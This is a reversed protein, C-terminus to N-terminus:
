LILCDEKLMSKEQNLDILNRVCFEKVNRTLITLTGLQNHLVGMYELTLYIDDKRFGTLNAIDNLTFQKSEDMLIRSIRQSWFRLYSVKGFASLPFEPGSHRHGQHQAIAYLLEILLSGLHRRQFPPFICICALNVDEDWPVMEKSFFGMPKFTDGLDNDIDHQDHGYVVYYEFQNVNYFVSKDDLFLKGFLSLNQCFLLHQNGNVQRVIYPSDDDWYVLEGITPKPKNYKCAARHLQCKVEVSTYKFCYECVYLSDLWYHSSPATTFSEIGLHRKSSKDSFLAGNGYWPSIEYNGFVVRRINPRELVGYEHPDPM